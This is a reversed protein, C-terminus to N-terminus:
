NYGCIIHIPHQQNEINVGLPKLFKTDGTAQAILTSLTPDSGDELIDSFYKAVSEVTVPKTGHYRIPDSNGKGVYVTALPKKCNWFLGVSSFSAPWSLASFDVINGTITDLLHLHFKSGSTHYQGIGAWAPNEGTIYMGDDLTPDADIILTKSAALQCRGPYRDQLLNYSYLATYLCVGPTTSQPFDRYIEEALALWNPQPTKAREAAAKRAQRKKFNDRSSMERFGKFLPSDCGQSIFNWKLWVLM